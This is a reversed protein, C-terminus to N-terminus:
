VNFRELKTQQLSEELGKLSIQIVAEDPHLAHDFGLKEADIREGIVLAMEGCQSIAIVPRKRHIKTITAVVPKDSM